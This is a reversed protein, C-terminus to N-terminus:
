FEFDRCVRVYRATGLFDKKLVVLLFKFEVPCFDRHVRFDRCVRGSERDGRFMKSSFTLRSVRDDYTDASFLAPRVTYTNNAQMCILGM